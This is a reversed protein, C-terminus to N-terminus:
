SARAGALAAIRDPMDAGGLSVLLRDIGLSELRRLEAPVNSPFKDWEWSTFVSVAPGGDGRARIAAAVVAPDDYVNIEDAIETV